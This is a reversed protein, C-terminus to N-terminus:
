TAIVGMGTMLADIRHAETAHRLSHTPRDANIYIFDGEQRIISNELKRNGNQM